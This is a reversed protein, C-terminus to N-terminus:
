VIANQQLPLPFALSKQFVIQRIVALHSFVVLPVLLSPLFVFPFQLIAINPQDFGFQQLKGPASLIANVAINLVLLLCIFNWALLVTKGFSKKVFVFYYVIPASIGSLIDFNRGEFTMLKPIAKSAFLWLLTLEVPIRIIHFLTLTKLSLRDIFFKGKTTNFLVL